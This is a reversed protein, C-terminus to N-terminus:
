PQKLILYNMQLLSRSFGNIQVLTKEWIRKGEEDFGHGDRAGFRSKKEEEFRWLKQMFNNKLDHLEVHQAYHGLLM